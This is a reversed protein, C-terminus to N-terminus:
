PKKSYLPMRLVPTHRNAHPEATPREPQRFFQEYIADIAEQRWEITTPTGDLHCGPLTLFRQGRYMEIDGRKRRGQKPSSLLHWSDM